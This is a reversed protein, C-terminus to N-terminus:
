YDMLVARRSGYNPNKAISLAAEVEKIAVRIQTLDVMEKERSGIKYRKALLAKSEAKYLEELRRQLEDVNAM